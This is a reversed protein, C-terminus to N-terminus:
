VLTKIRFIEKMWPLASPIEAKAFGNYGKGVRAPSKAASLQVQIIEDFKEPLFGTMSESLRGTAKLTLLRAMNNGGSISWNTRRRKMRRGVLSFINSEMAGCNRYVVGDPPVPLDINRRKYLILGDRNNKFYTELARYREEELSDWTSNAYADIVDFM